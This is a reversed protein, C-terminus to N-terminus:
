TERYASLDITTKVATEMLVVPKHEVSALSGINRILELLLENTLRKDLEIAPTETLIVNQILFLRVRAVEPSMSLLRMYIYARDRIDPNENHEAGAKLVKQALQQPAGPKKLCLKVVATLLQLQVKMFDLFVASSEYTFNEFFFELLEGSNEIKHAYEGIIWILASKSELGDLSELNSCLTPIVAEYRNPFRRFIDKMVVIIEQVVYNVGLAMLDMLTAVCRDARSPLKIACKSIAKISNRVFLVDVENCYEKLESLVKDIINDSALKVLIELKELKVYPPDNYKTFFVNVQDALVDPHKELILSINRLAIYQIEPETSLLTVLNSVL